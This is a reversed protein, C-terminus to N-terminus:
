ATLGLDGTDFELQNIPLEREYGNDTLEFLHENLKRFVLGKITHIAPVNQLSCYEATLFRIDRLFPDSVAIYLDSDAIKYCLRDKILQQLM